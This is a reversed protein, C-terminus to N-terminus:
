TLLSWTRMRTGTYRRLNLFANREGKGGNDLDKDVGEKDSEGGGSDLANGDEDEQENYSKAQSKIATAQM